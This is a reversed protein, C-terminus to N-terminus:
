LNFQYLGPQKLRPDKSLGEIKLRDLAKAEIEKKLKISPKLLKKLAAHSMVKNCLPCDM